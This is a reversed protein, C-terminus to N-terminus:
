RRIILLTSIGEPVREGGMQQFRADIGPEDLAVQPVGLECGRHNGKVQGVFAM